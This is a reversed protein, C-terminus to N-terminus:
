KTYIVDRDRLKGMLAIPIFHSGWICRLTNNPLDLLILFTFM